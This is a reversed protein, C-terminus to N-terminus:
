VVGGDSTGAWLTGERDEFLHFFQTSRLVPTNGKDFTTFRVGDYRVLGDYTAIWLYGDRTQLVSSATNQPLGNSTTFSDFRYQASAAPAVSLCVLLSTLIARRPASM